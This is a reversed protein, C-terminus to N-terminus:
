QFLFQKIYAVFNDTKSFPNVSINEAFTVGIILILQEHVM